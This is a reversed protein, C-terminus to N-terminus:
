ERISLRGAGSYINFNGQRLFGVLTMGFERALRVALSSPASVAALLPMGAALTKQTLEFSARGSVILGLDGAPLRDAALLAGVVKDVANHRGVDERVVIITGGQDFAAAAHLGGTRDFVQQADRLRGPMSALVGHSLSFEGGPRDVAVQLAEISAKGCVGCSSTTYFHRTLADLDVTVAPDLEVRITNRHGSEPDPAGAAEASVVDAARRIVRETFLFGLALDVDHGPTRMTVAISRAAAGTATASCLQIELPEEVAVLDSQPQRREDQVRDIDIALSSGTM